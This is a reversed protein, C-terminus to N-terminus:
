DIVELVLYNIPAYEDQIFRYMGPVIEFKREPFYKKLELKAAMLQQAIRYPSEFLHSTKIVFSLHDPQPSQGQLVHNHAVPEEKGCVECIAVAVM